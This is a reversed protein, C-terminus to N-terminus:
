MLLGMQQYIKILEDQKSDPAGEVSVEMEAINFPKYDISNESNLNEKDAPLARKIKRHRAPALQSLLIEERRAFLASDIGSSRTPYVHDYQFDEWHVIAYVKVLFDEMKALYEEMSSPKSTLEFHDWADALLLNVDPNDFLKKFQAIAFNGSPASMSQQAKSLRRWCHLRFASAFTLLKKNLLLTPPLM